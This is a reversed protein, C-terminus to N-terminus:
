TLSCCFFPLPKFSSRESTMKKGGGEQAWESMTMYMKDTDKGM